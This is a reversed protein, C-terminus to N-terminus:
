FIFSFIHQFLTFRLSSKIQEHSLAYRQFLLICNIRKSSKTASLFRMLSRHLPDRARNGPRGLININSKQNNNIYQTKVKKTCFIVVNKDHFTAM